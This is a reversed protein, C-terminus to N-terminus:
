PGKPARLRVVNGKEDKIDTVVGTGCADCVAPEAFPLAVESDPVHVMRGWLPETTGPTPPTCHVCLKLGRLTHGHDDKVDQLVQGCRHCTMTTRAEGVKSIHVHRETCLSRAAM